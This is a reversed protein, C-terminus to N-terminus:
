KKCPDVLTLYVPNLILTVLRFHLARYYFHNCLKKSKRTDNQPRFQPDIQLQPLNM